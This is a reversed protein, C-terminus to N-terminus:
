KVKLQIDFDLADAIISALVEEMLVISVIEDDNLM